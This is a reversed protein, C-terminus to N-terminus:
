RVRGAVLRVKRPAAPWVALASVVSLALALGFGPAYSGTQDYAAGTIWPGLGAGASSFLNLTGFITGFRRGQFLEYPIVGYVAALGYGLGGQVAVMLYVLGPGPSRPMLLALAYCAAFGAAGLTWAWERGLRDSLHGLGIQGVVGALGVLGLALAAAGPPLGLELLYKTQHVQIAYWAFLGTGYALGIWWFRSTRAARALTWDTAAWVPDVVSRALGTSPGASPAPDGDPRLGMAEPRLRPVTLNLPILVVLVIVALAWCASRWGRGDILRQRWPILAISGIGVGSFALGIALGRKRVFWNPLVLSHGMYSTFASGGAVLVGMTAHLHWPEGIRTTLALGAAVVALGIPFVVRPGLRDMFVGIFPSYLTSVLFGIAFTAATTGRAWGFEALIPPFLLSFATRANVGVAMTVFAAAVIVWGYFVRRIM